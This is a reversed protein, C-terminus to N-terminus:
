LPTGCVTHYFAHDALEYLKLELSLSLCLCFYLAGVIQGLLKTASIGGTPLNDWAVFLGAPDLEGKFRKDLRARSDPYIDNEFKRKNSITYFSTRTLSTKAPFYPPSTTTIITSKRFDGICLM